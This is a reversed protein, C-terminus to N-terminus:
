PTLHAYSRDKASMVPGDIPWEIGLVPDDWAIGRAAEPAYCESMQDFVETADERTQFGHACGRPVYLTSRNAASLTFSEWHLYTPGPRLDVIVDLVEKIMEPDLASTPEDFLMIRPEMCLSRAIAVRQQQGGSLQTPFKNAQEPIRVRELYAMAKAQADKRSTGRARIQPLTCNELVSLHPFLNYAQFVMGMRSRVRDPDVRPDTIDETGLHIVGDDVTELLNVCRLLTSKGSGSAGIIAVMEGPWIDVDVDRLVTITDDGAQFSRSIGRASILPESMTM